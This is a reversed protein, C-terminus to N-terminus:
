TGAPFIARIADFATKGPALKGRVTSVIHMVHSYREVTMFEEVQVSGYESVRGVDNRGLDVLMVHEALEKEDHLLEEALAEDEAADRGRRRTGAIPRVFVDGEEVRVLMEPSSGVVALDGLKLYYM